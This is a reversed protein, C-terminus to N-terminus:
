VQFRKKSVNTDNKGDIKFKQQNKSKVNLKEKIRHYIVINIQIDIKKM